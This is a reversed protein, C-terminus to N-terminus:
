LRVLPRCGQRGSGAHSKGFRGRLAKGSLKAHPEKWQAPFGPNVDLRNGAALFIRALPNSVALLFRYIRAWVKHLGDLKL